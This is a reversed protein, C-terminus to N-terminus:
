RKKLIKSTVYKFEQKKLGILLTICTTSLFSTIINIFASLNLQKLIFTMIGVLTMVYILRLLVEKLFTTISIDIIRKLMYIRAYFTICALIIAVIYVISPQLGIHLLIFSIPFNLMHMSGVVIQYNKIKGTAQQLTILPLSISEIITLILTLQIFTISYDPITKLWLNLVYRTELILPISLILLLLFAFRSARMTLDFARNLDKQSYSKIIQPNIATLFNSSFSNIASNVQIAIGQAANVIPGFYINLLVGIGQTRLVGAVSGIFNWGAFSFMEQLLKRDWVLNYSCEEFHKKCYVGYIFRVLLAILCMLVSYFILKDVPSIIILFAIILKGLAEIISIYAFASMKEHAIITANYPISILNIIFTIITFQLVWNAALIRSNPITMQNNLFWVGISEILLTILISLLIQISISTSFIRKLKDISRNGLEYTIFRSIASSLSGSLVSFMTVISGVVNYIGFDEVGLANLVIRSTYLNVGMLFLMRIYLLLTNKAIKKNNETTRSM